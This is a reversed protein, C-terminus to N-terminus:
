ILDWIQLQVVATIRGELFFINAWNKYPFWIVWFGESIDEEKIRTGKWKESGQSQTKKPPSCFLASQKNWTPLQALNFIM